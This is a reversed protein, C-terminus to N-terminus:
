SPEHYPLECVTGATGIDHTIGCHCAVNVVRPAAITTELGALWLRGDDVVTDTIDTIATDYSLGQQSVVCVAVDLDGRHRALEAILEDVTV